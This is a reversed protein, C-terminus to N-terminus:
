TACGPSLSRPTFNVGGRKPSYSLYRMLHVYVGTNLTLEASSSATIVPLHILSAM